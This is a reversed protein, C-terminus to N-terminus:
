PLPDANIIQEIREQEQQGEELGLRALVVIPYLRIDAQQAAETLPTGNHAIALFTNLKLLFPDSATTYGRRLAVRIGREIDSLTATRGDNLILHNPTPEEDQIPTPPDITIGNTTPQSNGYHITLNFTYLQRGLPGNTGITINTPYQGESTLLPHELNLPNIPRLLITQAMGSDLPLDTTYVIRSIDALQIFYITQGNQVDIVSQRGPKLILTETTHNAQETPSPTLSPTQAFAPTSLLLQLAIALSLFKTM